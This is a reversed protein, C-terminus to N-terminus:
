RYQVTIEARRRLEATWAAIAAAREATNPNAGFRQNLYTATRLDDRIHRRLHERTAGTVAMAKAFAEPSGSRQELEEMRLTIEVPAPEPPQFRDVEGLMLHREILRDLVYALPDTTGPPAEVLTFVRAANVESLTIPQGRVVAVIRDMVEGRAPTVATVLLALIATHRKIGAVATVM